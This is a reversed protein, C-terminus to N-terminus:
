NPNKDLSSHLAPTQRDRTVKLNGNPERAVKAQSRLMSRVDWWVLNRVAPHRSIANDTNRHPCNLQPSM